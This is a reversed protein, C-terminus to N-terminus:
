TAKDTCSTLSDQVAQILQLKQEKPCALKHLHHNVAEIHIQSLTESLAKIDKESKPLHIIVNM